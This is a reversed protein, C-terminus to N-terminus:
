GFCAKSWDCVWVEFAVEALAVPGVSGTLGSVPGVFRGAIGSDGVGAGLCRGSSCVAMRDGVEVM